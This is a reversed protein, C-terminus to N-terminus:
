NDNKNKEKNEKEIQQIQAKNYTLYPNDILLKKVERAKEMCENTSEIMHKTQMKAQVEKLMDIHKELTVQGEINNKLKEDDTMFKDFQDMLSFMELPGFKIKEIEKKKSEKKMSKKIETDSLIAKMMDRRLKEKCNKCYFSHEIRKNDCDNNKCKSIFKKKKIHFFKKQKKKKIM